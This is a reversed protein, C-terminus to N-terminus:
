LLANLLRQLRSSALTSFDLFFQLLDKAFISLLIEPLVSAQTFRKEKSINSATGDGLFHLYASPNKPFIPATPCRGLNERTGSFHSCLYFTAAIIDTHCSMQSFNAFFCSYADAVDIKIKSTCCMQCKIM